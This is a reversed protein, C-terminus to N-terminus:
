KKLSGVKTKNIRQTEKTKTEIELLTLHLMLNNIQPRETLKIYASLAIFSGRLVAKATDWLNQYTKNENENFELFQKIEERIEKKKIKNNM